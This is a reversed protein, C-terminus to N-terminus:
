LSPNFNFNRIGFAVETCLDERNHRIIAIVFLILQDWAQENYGLKVTNLKLLQKVTSLLSSTTDVSLFESLTVFKLVRNQIYVERWDPFRSM